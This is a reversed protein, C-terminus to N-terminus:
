AGQLWEGSARLVYRDSTHPCHAEGDGVIPLDLQEGHRNIWGVQRALAGVVLAFDSIYRHVVAGADLFAERDITAGCVITCNM